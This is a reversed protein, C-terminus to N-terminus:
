PSGPAPAGALRKTAPQLEILVLEVRGEIARGHCPTIRATRTGSAAVARRCRLLLPEAFAPMVRLQAEQPRLQDHGDAAEGRAPQEADRTDGLRDAPAVVEVARDRNRKGM